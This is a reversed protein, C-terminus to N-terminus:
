CKLINNTITFHYYYLRIPSRTIHLNLHKQWVPSYVTMDVYIYSKLRPNKPLCGIRLGTLTSAAAAVRRRARVSAYLDFIRVKKFISYTRKQKKFLLSFTKSRIDVDFDFLFHFNLFAFFLTKIYFIFM